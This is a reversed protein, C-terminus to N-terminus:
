LQKQPLVRAYTCEVELNKIQSGMHLSLQEASKLHAPSSSQNDIACPM